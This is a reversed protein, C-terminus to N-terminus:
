IRKGRVHEILFQVSANGRFRNVQPTVLADIEVYGQASLADIEEKKFFGLVSGQPHDWKLHQDKLIRASSINLSELLFLPNLNGMGWPASGELALCDQVQIRQHIVGDFYIPDIDEHRELDRRSMKLASASEKMRLEFAELQSAELHLGAAQAHGGFRILLDSGSQLLEVCHLALSQSRMSGRFSGDEVKGLLIAPRSYAEMIKAAVIGLVGEYWEGWLVLVGPDFEQIKKAALALAEETIKKQVLTRQANLALIKEVLANAEEYSESLLLKQTLIQEGMRSAANLKPALQFSIDRASPPGDLKPLCKELLARLGPRSTRALFDLGTRTLVRNEEILPVCDAITAIAFLDLWEKLDPERRQDNFHGLKRLTARLGLCLYFAVGTGCLHGLGSSDSKQNPNIIYPTAPLIEEEPTHSTQGQKQALHHDTIILDVGLERCRDAAKMAAIGTDVTLVINAGQTHLAEIAAVHVGYGDKFRDPQFPLLKEFGCSKLFSYLLSLGSSGDIDYDGYIAICEQNELALALRQVTLDLNKLSFPNRLQNFSLNLFKESSSLEIGRSWLFTGLLPGHQNLYESPIQALDKRLKWHRSNLM